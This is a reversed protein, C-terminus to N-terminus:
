ATANEVAANSAAVITSADEDAGATALDSTGGNQTMTPPGRPGLVM